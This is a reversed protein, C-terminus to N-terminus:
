SGIIWPYAPPLFINFLYDLNNKELPACEASGANQVGCIRCVPFNYVIEFWGAGPIFRELIMMPLKMKLQVISLMLFVFAFVAFSLTYRSKFNGSM